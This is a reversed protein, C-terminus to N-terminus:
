KWDCAEMDHENHAFELVFVNIMFYVLFLLEGSSSGLHSSFLIFYFPLYFSLNFFICM